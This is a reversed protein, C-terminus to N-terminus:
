GPAIVRDRSTRLPLEQPRVALSAPPAFRYAWAARSLACSLSHARAPWRDAAGGRRGGVTPSRGRACWVVMLLLATFCRRGVRFGPRSWLHVWGGPPPFALNPHCRGGVSLSPSSLGHRVDRDPRRLSDGLRDVRRPRAGPARIPDVLGHHQQDQRDRHHHPEGGALVQPEVLRLADRDGPQRQGAVPRGHDGTQALVARWREVVQDQVDPDAQEAGAVRRHPRQRRDGVQDRGPRQVQQAAPDDSLAGGLEGHDEVDGRRERQPERGLGPHVAQDDQQGREPAEGDLPRQALGRRQRHRVHCERGARQRESM